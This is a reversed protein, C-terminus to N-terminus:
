LRRSFSTIDVGEDDDDVFQGELSKPVPASSGKIQNPDVDEYIMSLMSDGDTVKELLNQRMKRREEENVRKSSEQRDSGRSVSLVESISNGSKLNSIYREALVENVANKVQSKVEERVIQKIVKLLKKSDM